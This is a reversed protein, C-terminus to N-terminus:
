DEKAFIAAGERGQVGLGALLDPIKLGILQPFGRRHSVKGVSLLVHSDGCAGVDDRKSQWLL